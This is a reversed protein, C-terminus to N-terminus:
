LLAVINSCVDYVSFEDYTLNLKGAEIQAYDLLDNSLFLLLESSSKAVELFHIHSQPVVETLLNLMSILGSLPNRFEHSSAGLM